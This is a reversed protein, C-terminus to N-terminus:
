SIFDGAGRLMGIGVGAGIETHLLLMVETIPTDIEHECNCKELLSSVYCMEETRVRSAFALPRHKMTGQNM